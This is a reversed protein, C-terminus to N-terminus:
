KGEKKNSVREYFKQSVKDGYSEHCNKLTDLADQINDAEMLALAEEFMNVIKRNEDNNELLEYILVPKTKGKVLVSELKRTLFRDDLKKKTFESVIITTGYTKNLGELRSALNVGDGMATYNFRSNSGMNGVVVEDTNIGAGIRIQPLGEKALEINLSSLTKIMLLAGECARAPHEDMSVPANYFAMIADGIYKDLMGGKEMVIQTMPTFYRNLLSVLAEPTLSESITTFDRIDSFFITLEKKEGGLQLKQPNKVLDNLLDPSLYSSFADKIFKSKKEELKFTIAESATASLIIAILPYFTDIWGNQEVYLLKTAVFYAIYSAIYLTFRVNINKVFLTVLMPILIFLLIFLPELKEYTIIVDNQFVNSLFTAHILPGAIQGIPTARIDSVGTESIGVIVIKDKFFSPDIRSEAVDAFSVQLYKKPEYFNLPTFAGYGLSLKTDGITGVGNDDIDFDKNLHMRLAQIGLSPYIHDKYIFATPYKRFLQDKDPLTSFCASLKAAGLLEQSNLEAFKAEIIKEHNTIRELSSDTLISIQANSPQESAYNRLFFGAVVNDLKSITESLAKDSAENTKESFVMDLLIMKSLSLKELGQAFVKRDWPWRGFKNVSKEDVLVTIIEKSPNKSNLEYNVDNLRLSFEYLPSIKFHYLLFIAPFLIAVVIIRWTLVERM